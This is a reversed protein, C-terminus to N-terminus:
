RDHSLTQLPISSFIYIGAITCLNRKWKSLFFIVWFNGIPILTRFTRRRKRAETNELWGGSWCNAVDAQASRSLRHMLQLTGITTTGTSGAVMRVSRWRSAVFLIAGSRATKAIIWGTAQLGAVTMVVTCGATLLIGSSRSWRSAQLLGLSHREIGCYCWSFPAIKWCNIYRRWIGCIRIHGHDCIGILVAVHDHHVCSRWLVGNQMVVLWWTYSEGGRLVLDLPVLFCWLIQYM